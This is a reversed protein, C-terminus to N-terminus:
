LRLVRYFRKDSERTSDLVSNTGGTGLLSAGLNFWTNTALYSAWQVQYLTGTQALWGVEIASWILCRPCDALEAIEDGSLARNYIRVEDLYGDLYGVNVDTFPVQGVPGCIVGLGLQTGVTPTEQIGIRSGVFHGDLYFRLSADDEIVAWHHWKNLPANTYPVNLGYVEWHSSVYFSGNGKLNLGMFFSNGTGGGGYGLFGPRNDVRRANFWLSITRTGSPLNSAPASIYQSIGDFSFCGNSVGSRNTAPVAGHIVGHNGNGSADVANGDLPYYAVLGDTLLYRHRDALDMIEDESVARNYIRVEDLFGDLYGVNVDTFPVQGTQGCIVGLGLQTGATPTEQTGTRSGLLQGDLYFRLGADDEIVAWHHWKNIPASRYRVNLGYIEWHSSVYFSGNGKLNLGMFFSNGTGAGGYGLFGPRNDVRKANFWLSITRTGSPLNSAPASIYQSIGNFSFCGNAVGFRNTAPVAGHVVGDNGNGSADVANGDLPYYAVLGDTLSSQAPVSGALALVFTLLALRIM